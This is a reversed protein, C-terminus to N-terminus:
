NVTTGTAMEQLPSAIIIKRSVFSPQGVIAVFKGNVFTLGSEAPTKENFNLQHLTTNIIGISITSAPTNATNTKLQQASIFRTQESAYHLENIAQKFHDAHSDNYKGRNYDYLSCFMATKNYLIGSTIQATNLNTMMFAWDPPTDLVQIQQANVTHFIALLLSLSLLIKKM